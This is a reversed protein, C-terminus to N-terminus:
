AVPTPPTPGSAVPADNPLRAVGVTAVAAPRWEHGCVPSQCRHTRHPKTAWIGDDIHLIGCEPCVLVMPIPAQPQLDRLRRIEADADRLVAQLRAVFARQDQLMQLGVDPWAFGTREHPLHVAIPEANRSQEVYCHHQAWASPPMLQCCFSCLIHRYVPM